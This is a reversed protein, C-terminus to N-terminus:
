HRDEDPEPPEDDSELHTRCALRRVRWPPTPDIETVSANRFPTEGDRALDLHRTAIVRCVLGHTVVALAGQVSAQLQGVATWLRDVRAVFDTWREGGSPDFDEAFVLDGVETYPRGRLDGMHRERLLPDLTLTARTADAIPQATLHARAYDSSLVRGVRQRRLRQALRAAQWRGRASLPTDPFQVVRAANLTTEAHRILLIPPASM